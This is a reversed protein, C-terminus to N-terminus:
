HEELIRGFGYVRDNIGSLRLADWYTVTNVALVPKGFWREAEAAAAVAPLGTGVQVL